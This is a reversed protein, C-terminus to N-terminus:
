HSGVRWAEDATEAVPLRAALLRDIKDRTEPPVHFFLPQPVNAGLDTTFVVFDTNEVWYRARLMSWPIARGRIVIGRERLGTGGGSLWITLFLTLCVLSSIEDVPHRRVILQGLQTLTMPIMGISGLRARRQQKHYISEWVVLEDGLRSIRVARSVFVYVVMVGGAFAAGLHAYHWAASEPHADSMLACVSILGITVVAPGSTLVQRVRTAQILGVPLAAYVPAVNLSALEGMSVSPQPMLGALMAFGLAIAPMIVLGFLIFKFETSVRLWAFFFAVAFM